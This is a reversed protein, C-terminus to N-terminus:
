KWLEIQGRQDGVLLTGQAYGLVSVDLGLPPKVFGTQVLERDLLVVGGLRVSSAAVREGLYVLAAVRSPLPASTARVRGTSLDVLQVVKRALGVALEGGGPGFALATVPSKLSDVHQLVEWTKTDWVRVGTSGVALRSGDASFALQFKLGRLGEFTRLLSGDEADRVWLIGDATVGAVVDGRPSFAAATFGAATRGKWRALEVGFRDGEGLDWVRMTADQGCTVLRGGDPSLGADFVLGAHTADLPLGAGTKLDWVIVSGDLGASVVRDARVDLAALQGSHGVVAPAALWTGDETVRWRRIRRGEGGVVVEGDFLIPELLAGERKSFVKPEDDLSLSWVEVSGTGSEALARRGDASLGLKLVPGVAGFRALERGDELDWLHLGSAGGAVFLGASGAETPGFGVAQLLDDKSVLRVEEVGSSVDFVHVRSSDEDRTGARGIVKRANTAMVAMRTGDASWAVADARFGDVEFARRAGQEGAPQSLKSLMVGGGPGTVRWQALRERDPSLAFGGGLDALDGWGRSFLDLETLAGKAPDWELAHMHDEIDGVLLVDASAFELTVARPIELELEGLLAGDAARWLAVNGGGAVSAVRGSESDAALADISTTRLFRGSGLESALTLPAQVLLPALVLATLSMM